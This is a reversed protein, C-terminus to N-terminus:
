SEDILTYGEEFAEAPSFSLYGDAYQVLYGGKYPQHKLLYGSDVMIAAVGEEYFEITAGGDEHLNIAEIRAATVEKHCKYRPLDHM